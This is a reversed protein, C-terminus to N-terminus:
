MMLGGPTSARIWWCLSIPLPSTFQSSNKEVRRSTLKSPTAVTQTNPQSSSASSMWRRISSRTVDSSGGRQARRGATAGSTLLAANPADFKGSAVSRAARQPAPDTPWAPPRPRWPTSGAASRSRWRRRPSSPPEVERAAAAIEVRLRDVAALLSGHQSWAAEDVLPDVALVRALRTRREDLATLHEEVLLRAADAAEGGAAIPAVAKIAGAATALLDGLAARQAPTYATAQEGAPVFYTRDLVARALTRLLHCGSSPPSPARFRPHADRGRRGRPNLRAAEEARAVTLEARNVEDAVARAQGMWHDAAHRSWPELIGAGFGAAFRSMREALEGIAAGAPQLYLPPAVLMSVAVGVLAGLIAEEVRAVGLSGSGGVELLLMASIPAEFLHPGLRLVKGVVISGAVVAGLSWWTLGVFHAVLVAVAVGALVGGVRGLGHALSQYLTLQVVLLAVLPAVIPHESLHLVEALLYAAVVALTVKATRLGPTRGRRFLTSRLRDACSGALWKM